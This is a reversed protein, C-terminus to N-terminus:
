SRGSLANKIEKIFDREDKPNNLVVLEKNHPNHLIKNYIEETPYNWIFKILDFNLMKRHGTKKSGINQIYRKLLRFYITIKSFNFFIITEAKRLRMEFSKSKMFNGDIIWKEDSMMKEQQQTFDEQKIGGEKTWFIDDLNQTPINLLESLRNALTTKGSAPCGVIVIKKMM